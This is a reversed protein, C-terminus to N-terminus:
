TGKTFATKVIKVMLEAFENSAPYHPSSTTNQFGWVDIFEIFAVSAYKPGNDIRLIEPVGHEAFIEKMKSIVAASTAGASTM